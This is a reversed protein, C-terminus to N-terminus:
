VAGNFNLRRRKFKLITRSRIICKHKVILMLVNLLNNDATDFEFGFIIHKV